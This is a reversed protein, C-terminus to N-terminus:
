GLAGNIATRNARIFNLFTSTGVPSALGKEMFEAPDIANIIRVGPTQNAGPAKGGNMVHRPDQETLVEEGKKLVAAVENRRLGAVGGEHFRAANAILAQPIGRRRLPSKGIVGGGHASIGAIVGGIQGGIGSNQIAKLILAQIIMQAIQRLFDAAFQRFVDGINKLSESWSDTGDIAKGLATAIDLIGQTAGQTVFQTFQAAVERTKKELDSTEVNIRTLSAITKEDGLARALALAEEKAQQIKLRMAELADIQAQRAAPDLEGAAQAAQFEKEAAQREAELAKIQEVQEKLLEEAREREIIKQTVEGWKKGEETLLDIHERRARNELEQQVTVKDNLAAQLAQTQDITALRVREAEAADFSAAASARLAKEQDETFKVGKKQAEQKKDFVEKEITQDRVSKGVLTQEFQRLAITREIEDNFEKQEDRKARPEKEAKTNEAKIAKELEAKATNITAIRRAIEEKSLTPDALAADAADQLKKRRANQDKDRQLKPIFSEVTDLGASAQETVRQQEKLADTALKIKGTTKDVEIGVQKYFNTLDGLKGGLRETIAAQEGLAIEQQRLSSKSTSLNAILGALAIEAPGDLTDAMKALQEQYNKVSIKGAKLQSELDQLKGIVVDNAFEQNTRKFDNIIGEAAKASEERTHGYAAALQELNGRAEFQTTEVLSANFERGARAAATAETQYKDLQRNHEDLAQTADAVQTAMGGFFSSIVAVATAALAIPGLSALVARLSVAVAAGAAALGRMAVATTGSSVGTTAIAVATASVQTFLIRMSAILAGTSSISAAQTIVQKQQAADLALFQQAGVAAAAGATKMQNSLGVLFQAVKVSAFAQLISLFFGFNQIVFSLIRVLNGLLAGLELFFDRGARSRFSDNLEKLADKLAEGFGGEAVRAQAEFLNNSFKDIQTTVTELAAPLAGGFRKTLEDAFALLTKEDAAVKGTSVLKSLEATSVGLAKAFINFAGPLRDGLQRRLEEMSVTGKSVMQQLALFTGELQEVSVKNVRGAEAVAIFIKNSAELSFNAADTAIAFQGFQNSLVSFSLGLRDAEQSLFRLQQRVQNQDGGFVANLRSGAAEVQRLASIVGGIGQVAAFFGIFQTALSLVEGRLRQAISLARRSKDDFDQVGAGAKRANGEVGAFSGRLSEVDRGLLRAAIGARESAAAQEGLQADLVASVHAADADAAAKVKEAAAAARAAEALQQLLASQTRWEQGAASANVRAAELEARLLATPEVAAAVAAKMADLDIKAAKFSARAKDVAEQQLKFATTTASTGGSGGASAAAQQAAKQRILADSVKQIAAAVKASEDAIAEQRVEVGGLAQAATSAAGKIETLATKAETVAAAEELAGKAARDLATNARDFEVSASRVQAGLSAFAAGASRVAAQGAAVAQNQRTQAEILAVLTNAQQRVAERAQDSAGTQQRLVNVLLQYKEKANAVETNLRAQEARASALSGQERELALGAQRAASELEALKLATGSAAAQTTKLREEAGALSAEMKEVNTTTRALNQSLRGLATLAQANKQLTGLETALRNLASNATAGSKGLGEQAGALQQLAAIIGDVASKAQDRAKFILEVERKAM